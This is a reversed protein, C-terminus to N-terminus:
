FSQKPLDLLLQFTKQIFIIQFVMYFTNMFVDFTIFTFYTAFKKLPDHPLYSEITDSPKTSPFPTFPHPAIVDLFPGFHPSIPLRLSSGLVPTIPTVHNDAIQTSYPM